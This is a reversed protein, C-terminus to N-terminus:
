CNVSDSARVIKQWTSSCRVLVSALIQRLHNYLWPLIVVPDKSGARISRTWFYTNGVIPPDPVESGSALLTEVSICLFVNRCTYYIANIYFESIHVKRSIFKVRLGAQMSIGAQM